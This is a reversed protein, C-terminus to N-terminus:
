IKNTKGCEPCTCEYNYYKPNDTIITFDGDKVTGSFMAKCYRCTATIEQEDWNELKPKIVKM